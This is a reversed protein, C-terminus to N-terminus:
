ASRGSSTSWCRASQVATLEKVVTGLHPYHALITTPDEVSASRHKLEDALAQIARWHRGVETVARRWRDARPATGRERARSLLWSLAAIDGTAGRATGTQRWEAGAGALLMLAYRDLIDPDRLVADESWQDDFIVQGSVDGIYIQGLQLGQFHGVVAHGAEHYAVIDRLRSIM